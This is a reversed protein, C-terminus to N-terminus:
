LYVRVEKTVYWIEDEVFATDVFVLCSYRKLKETRLVHTFLFLILWRFCTSAKKNFIPEHLLWTPFIVQFGM